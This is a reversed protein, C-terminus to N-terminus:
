VTEDIRLREDKVIRKTNKSYHTAANSDLTVNMDPCMEELAEKMCKEHWAACETVNREAVESVIEDHPFLLTRGPARGLIQGVRVKWLARTSIRAGLGQFHTNAAAPRTCGRRVMTSGPIRVDYFGSANRMGRVVNLFARISHANAMWARMVQAAKAATWGLGRPNSESRSGLNVYLAFTEPKTMFGSLGYNGYKGCQRADKATAEGAALRRLMEEESIGLIGAGVVAHYDKGQNLADALQHHNCLWICVQALAYLELSPYDTAVYACGPRAMLCERIGRKRRFNQLNPKACTTRSTAAFGYRPHIPENVGRRLMVLDKNRVALLEGLTSLRELLFDGSDQLTIKDCRTNGKETVPANGEYAEEVAARIAAMNRSGDGRLFGAQTAIESLEAINETTEEELLHLREPDTRVGWAATMHLALADRCLMAVDPEQALGRQCQREGITETHRADDMAYRVQEPSYESLPRGRLPAYSLRVDGQKEVHVGYKAGVYDLGLRGRSDGCAIEIIRERLMTDVVRGQEYAEILPRVLRPYHEILVAADFAVNHGQLTNGRDLAEGIVGEIQETAYLQARGDVCTSLCVPAPALYSPAILETELDFTLM